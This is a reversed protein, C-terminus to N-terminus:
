TRTERLYIVISASLFCVGAVGLEGVTMAGLAVLMLAVALIALPVAVKKSM